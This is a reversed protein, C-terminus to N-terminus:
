FGIFVLRTHPRSAPFVTIQQTRGPRPSANAKFPGAPPRGSPHGFSGRYSGKLVRFIQMETQLGKRNRKPSEKSPEKFPEKLHEKGALVGCCKGCECRLRTPKQHQIAPGFPSHYGETYSHSAVVHLRDAWSIDSRSLNSGCPLRPLFRHTTGKPNCRATAAPRM